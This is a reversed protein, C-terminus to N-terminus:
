DAWARRTKDGGPVPPLAAEFFHRRGEVGDEACIDCFTARAGTRPEVGIFTAPRGCEHGFTGPNSNICRPWHGGTAALRSSFRTPFGYPFNFM